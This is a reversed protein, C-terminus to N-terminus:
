GDTHRGGHKSERLGLDDFGLKGRRKWGGDMSTPRNEFADFMELETEDGVIAGIEDVVAHAGDTIVLRRRMTERPVVGVVTRQSESGGSSRILVRELGADDEGRACPAVQAAQGRSGGSEMRDMCGVYREVRETANPRIHGLRDGVEGPMVRDKARSYEVPEVDIGRGEFMIRSPQGVISFIVRRQEVDM